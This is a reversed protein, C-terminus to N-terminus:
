KVDVLVSDEKQEPEIQKEQWNEKYSLFKRKIFRLLTLMISFWLTTIVFVKKGAPLNIFILFSVVPLTLQMRVVEGRSTPYPSTLVSLTELAFISLSQILNLTFSTHALDYKGLFLLNFPETPQPIFPYILHLDQGELGTSFIRWLMLAIMVQIALSVLESLIIRPNTRFIHKTAKRLAVPDHAYEHQLEKVQAAILRREQESRDSALSLPLMLFRIVLTLFIVAIGMDPTGVQDMLWYFSVLINFFPQYILLTFIAALSM